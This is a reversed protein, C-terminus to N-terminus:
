PPFATVIAPAAKHSLAVLSQHPFVFPLSPSMQFGSVSFSKLAVPFLLDSNMGEFRARHYVCGMGIKEESIMRGKKSLKGKTEGGIM